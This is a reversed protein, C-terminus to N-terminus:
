SPIYRIRFLIHAIFYVPKQGMTVWKKEYVSYFVRIFLANDTDMGEAFALDEEGAM